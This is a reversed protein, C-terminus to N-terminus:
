PVNRDHGWAGLRNRLQADITSSLVTFRADIRAQLQALSETPNTYIIERHEYLAGALIQTKEATTIQGAAVGETMVTAGGLGSGVLATRYNVGARNNTNPVPIHFLVEFSNGDADGTRAHWNAM